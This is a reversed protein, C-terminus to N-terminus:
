IKSVASYLVGALTQTQQERVQAARSQSSAPKIILKSLVKLFHNVLLAILFIALLHLATSVTIGSLFNVVSSMPLKCPSYLMSPRFASARALPLRHVSCPSISQFYQCPGRSDGRKARPERM